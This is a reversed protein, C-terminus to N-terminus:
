SLCQIVSLSYKSTESFSFAGMVGVAVGLSKLAVLGVFGVILSAFAIPLGVSMLVLFALIGIMGVVEASM